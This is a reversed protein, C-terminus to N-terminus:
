KPLPLASRSLILAGQSDTARIVVDFVGHGQAETPTWQFRGSVADITAGLPATDLSFRIQTGQQCNPDFVITQISLLTQENTTQDPIAIINPVTNGYTPTGM